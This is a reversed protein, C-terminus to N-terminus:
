DVHNTLAWSPVFHCAHRPLNNFSRFVFSGLITKSPDLSRLSLCKVHQLREDASNCFLDRRDSTDQRSGNLPEVRLSNCNPWLYNTAFSCLRVFHNKKFLSHASECREAEASYTSLSLCSLSVSIMLDTLSAGSDATSIRYYLLRQTSLREKNM